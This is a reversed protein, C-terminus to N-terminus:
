EDPDLHLKTTKNLAASEEIHLCGPEKKKM